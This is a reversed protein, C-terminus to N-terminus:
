TMLEGRQKCRMRGIAKAADSSASSGVRLVSASIAMAREWRRAHEVIAAVEGNCRCGASLKGRGSGGRARRTAKRRPADVVKLKGGTVEEM